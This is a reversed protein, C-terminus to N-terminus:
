QKAEVFRNRARVTITLSEEGRRINLRVPQNAEAQCARKAHWDTIWTMSSSGNCALIIDGSRVGAEHATSHRSFETVTYLNEGARVQRSWSFGLSGTSILGAKFEFRTVLAKLVERAAGDLTALPFATFHGQGSFLVTGKEADIIRLTLSVTPLEVIQNTETRAKTLTWQRVEGVAVATAGTLRGVNIAVTSEDGLKLQLHQENLLASLQVREVANFGAVSLLHTVLGAATSGSGRVGSDESFPLVAITRYKEISEGTIPGDGHSIPLPMILTHVFPLESKLAPSPESKPVVLANVPPAERSPMGGVYFTRGTYGGQLSTPKSIGTSSYGARYPLTLIPVDTPAGAVTQPHYGSLIIREIQVGPETILNWKVPQYAGFYLVLPKNKTTVYIDIVGSEHPIGEYVDIVHLEVNGEPSSTAASLQTPLFGTLGHVSSVALMLPFFFPTKFRLIFM